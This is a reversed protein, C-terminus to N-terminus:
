RRKFVADPTEAPPAIGDMHRMAIRGYITALHKYVWEFVEVILDSFAWWFLSWPWFMMWGTIRSKSTTVNPRANWYYTKDYYNGPKDPAADYQRRWAACWFNWRVMSYLVGLGIYGVVFPVLSLPNNYVYGFLDYGLAFQAVLAVVVVSLFAFGTRESAVLALVLLGWGFFVISPWLGIGTLLGLGFEM